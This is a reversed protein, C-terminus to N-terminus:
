ERSVCHHHDDGPDSSPGHALCSLAAGVIRPGHRGPRNKAAVARATAPIAADGAVADDLSVLAPLLTASSWRGAGGVHASNL